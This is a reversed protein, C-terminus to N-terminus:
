QQLCELRWFCVIRSADFGMLGHVGPAYVLRSAALGLTEVSDQMFLAVDGPTWDMTMLPEKGTFEIVFDRYGSPNRVRRLLKGFDNGQSKLALAKSWGTGLEKDVWKTVFIGCDHVGYQFPKHQQQWLYSVLRELRM